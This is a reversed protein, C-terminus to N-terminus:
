DLKYIVLKSYTGINSSSTNKCLQDSNKETLTIIAFRINWNFLAVRIPTESKWGLLKGKSTEFSFSSTLRLPCSPWAASFYWGYPCLRFFFCELELQSPGQRCVNTLWLRGNYYRYWSLCFFVYKVFRCESLPIWVTSRNRTYNVILFSFKFFSNQFLYLTCFTVCRCLDM